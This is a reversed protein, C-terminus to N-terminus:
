LSILEGRLLGGCFLVLQRENAITKMKASAMTLIKINVVCQSNDCLERRWQVRCRRM